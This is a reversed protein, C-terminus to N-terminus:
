SIKSFFFWFSPWAFMLSSKSRKEIIKKERPAFCIKTKKKRQKVFDSFIRQNSKYMHVRNVSTKLLKQKKKKYYSSTPERCLITAM